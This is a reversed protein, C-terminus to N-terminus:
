TTAGNAKPKRAQKAKIAGLEKTQSLKIEGLRQQNM